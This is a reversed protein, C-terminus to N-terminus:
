CHALHKDARPDAPCAGRNATPSPGTLDSQACCDSIGPLCSDDPQTQYAALTTCLLGHALVCPLVHPIAVDNLM